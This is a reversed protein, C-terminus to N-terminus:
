DTQERLLNEFREMEAESLESIIVYNLGVKNWGCLIYRQHSQVAFDIPRSVAPRVLKNVFHNKRQYVIAAV